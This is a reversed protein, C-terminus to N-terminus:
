FTDHQSWYRHQHWGKHSTSWFFMIDLGWEKVEIPSVYFVIGKRGTAEFSYPMINWNCTFWNVIIIIYSRAPTYQLAFLFNYFNDKLFHCFCRGSVHKLKSSFSLWPKLSRLRCLWPPATLNIFPLFSRTRWLGCM